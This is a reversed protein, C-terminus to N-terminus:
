VLSRTLTFGRAPEVGTGPVLCFFGVVGRLRNKKMSAVGLKGSEWKGYVEDPDFVKEEVFKMDGEMSEVARYFCSQYGVHCAPGDSKVRVLVVDQDCDVRVEVVRQVHGSSEGKVWIKGRSRSYFMAKGKELTGALAEENMWAVM